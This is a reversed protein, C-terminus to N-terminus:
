RDYYGFTFILVRDQRSGVMRVPEDELWRGPPASGVFVHSSSAIGYDTVDQQLTVSIVDSCNADSDKQVARAAAQAVKEPNADDDLMMTICVARIQGQPSYLTSDKVGVPYAGPVTELSCFMSGVPRLLNLGVTATVIVAAAFVVPLIYWHVRSLGGHEVPARPQSHIVFSGVALDHLTQGNRRNFIALYALGCYLMGALLCLLTGATSLLLGPLKLLEPQGLALCLIATRMIARSFPIAKGSADVVRIRLLYMGLTQGQNLESQLVAFYLLAVVTTVIASTQMYGGVTGVLPSTLLGSAISIVVVDVVFATVRRWFGCPKSVVAAEIQEQGTMEM